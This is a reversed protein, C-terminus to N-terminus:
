VTIFYTRCLCSSEFNENYIKHNWQRLGLASEACTL